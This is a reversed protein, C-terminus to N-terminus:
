PAEMWAELERGSTEERARADQGDVGSEAPHSPTSATRWLSPAGIKDERVLEADQQYRPRLASGCYAMNAYSSTCSKIMMTFLLAWFIISVLGMINRKNNNGNNNGKDPKLPSFRRGKGYSRESQEPEPTRPVNILIM